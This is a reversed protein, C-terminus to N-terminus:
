VTDTDHIARRKRITEADIEAIMERAMTDALRKRMESDDYAEATLPACSYDGVPESIGSVFHGSDALEWGSDTPVLIGTPSAPDAAEGVTALRLDDGYRLVGRREGKVVVLHPANRLQYGTSFSPTLM